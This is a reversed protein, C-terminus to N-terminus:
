APAEPKPRVPGFFIVWTAFDDSIIEFRHERWAPVYLADGAEVEVKERERQFVARGRVVIYVEDRDHPTQLDAGVPSYCELTFDGREFIVDFPRDLGSVTDLADYLDFKLPEPPFAV